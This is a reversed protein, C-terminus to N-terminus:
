AWMVACLHMLASHHCPAGYGCAVSVRAALSGSGKRGAHPGHRRAPGSRRRHRRRQLGVSGRNRDSRSRRLVRDRAVVRLGRVGRRRGRQVGGHAGPRASARLVLARRSRVLARHM